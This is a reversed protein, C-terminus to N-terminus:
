ELALAATFRWRDDTLSRAPPSAINNIINGFANESDYLLYKEHASDDTHSPGGVGM